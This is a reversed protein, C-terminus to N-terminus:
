MVHAAGSSHQQRVHAGGVVESRFVCQGFLVHKRRACSWRREGSWARLVEVAM